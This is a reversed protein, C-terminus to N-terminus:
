PLGALLPFERVSIPSDAWWDPHPDVHGRNYFINLETLTPRSRYAIFVSPFPLNMGSYSGSTVERTEETPTQWIRDTNAFDLVFQTAIRVDFFQTGAEDSMIPFDNKFFNEVDTATPFTVHEGALRLFGDLMYYYGSNPPNTTAFDLIDADPAKFYWQNSSTNIPRREIYYAAGWQLKVIEQFPGIDYPGPKPKTPTAM